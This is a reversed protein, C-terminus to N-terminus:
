SGLSTAISTGLLLNQTIQKNTALLGGASLTNIKYIERDIDAKSFSFSEGRYTYSNIKALQESATEKLIVDNLNNNRLEKNREQSIFEYGLKSLLWLSKKQLSNESTNPPLNNM